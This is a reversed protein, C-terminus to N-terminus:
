LYYHRGVLDGNTKKCEFLGLGFVGRPRGATVIQSGTALPKHVHCSQRAVMFLSSPHINIRVNHRCWRNDLFIVRYFYVLLAYFVIVYKRPPRLIMM